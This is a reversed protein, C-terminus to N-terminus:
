GSNATSEIRHWSRDPDFTTMSRAFQPTDPGLDRQYVVGDHNVIFTMVGSVGYRAPYAVLAFGGLMRGEALYDYAGGNANAGQATLMRYYYGHYPVPKSGAAPRPYGEAAARAALAGLPSPEGGSDSPWYLGDEKGPTSVLRRAFARVGSGDHDTSAYERQADVIALCVQIADLENKGIRRNLIENIGAATDFLWAGDRRVIPIPFPWGREGVHLVAVDDGRQELSHQKAYADVFRRAARRDAVPDGSQLLKEGELGLIAQASQSDEAKLAGVLARAAEATTAFRKQALTAAAEGGVVLTVLVALVAACASRGAHTSLFSANPAM